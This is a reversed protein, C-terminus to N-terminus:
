LSLARWYHGTAEMGIEIEAYPAIKQLLLNADGLSHQIVLAM